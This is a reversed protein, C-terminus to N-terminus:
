QSIHSQDILNHYRKEKEENKQRHLIDKKEKREKEKEENRQMKIKRQDVNEVASLCFIGMSGFHELDVVFSIIKDRERCM